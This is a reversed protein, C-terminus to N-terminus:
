PSCPRACTSSECSLDPRQCAPLGAGCVAGEVAEATCMAGGGADICSAVDGCVDFIDAFITPECPAGFVRAVCTTGDCEGRLCRDGPQCAEGVDPSPVCRSAHCSAGSVCQDSRDCVDGLGFIPQCTGALCRSGWYCEATATCTAGEANPARCVSDVCRLDGDCRPENFRDRCTEGEAPLSACTGAPCYLDRACEFDSACAAGEGQLPRCTSTADCFLGSECGATCPDGAGGRGACLGSRCSLHSQCESSGTCAAGLGGRAVCIGPCTALECSGGICEDDLYCVGGPATNPMTVIGCAEVDAPRTGEQLCTLVDFDLTSRGILISERLSRVTSFVDPRANCYLAAVAAEFTEEGESMTFLRCVEAIVQDFRQEVSCAVGSETCSRCTGGAGCVPRAAACHDDTECEVCMGTAACRPLERDCDDPGACDAVCRGDSACHSLGVEDM